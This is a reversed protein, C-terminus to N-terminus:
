IWTSELFTIATGEENIIKHRCITKNEEKIVETSVKVTEGYTTEKIYTVKINKLECSLVIDKPITELAWAVYKVNNVHMNTDIDSHRVQFSKERNM